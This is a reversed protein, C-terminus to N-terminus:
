CNPGPCVGGRVTRGCAPCPHPRPDIGRRRTAKDHGRQVNRCICAGVYRGCRGCSRGSILKRLLSM